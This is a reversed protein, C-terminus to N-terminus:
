CLQCSRACDLRVACLQMERVHACIQPESVDFCRVDAAGAGSQSEPQTRTPQPPRQVALAAGLDIQIAISQPEQGNVAVVPQQNTTTAGRPESNQSNAPQNGAQESDREVGGDGGNQANIQAPLIPGGLPREGGGASTEALIPPPFFSPRDDGPVQPKPLFEADACAGCIRPCLLQTLPSECSADHIRACASSKDVCDPTRASRHPTCTKCSFPCVQDRVEAYKDCYGFVSMSWFACRWNKDTCERGPENLEEESSSSKASETTGLAETTTTTTTTTSTETTTTLTATTGFEGGQNSNWGHITFGRGNPQIIFHGVETAPSKSPSQPPALCKKSRCIRM